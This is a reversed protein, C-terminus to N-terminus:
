LWTSGTFSRCRQLVTQSGDDVVVIRLEKGLPELVGIIQRILPEVSEEENYVPVVVSLDM